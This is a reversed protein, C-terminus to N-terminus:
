KNLDLLCEYKELQINMKQSKKKNRTNNVTFIDNIAILQITLIM